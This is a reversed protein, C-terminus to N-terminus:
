EFYRLHSLVLAQVLRRRRNFNVIFICDVKRNLCRTHRSESLKEVPISELLMTYSCTTTHKFSLLSLKTENDRDNMRMGFQRGDEGENHRNNNIRQLKITAEFVTKM